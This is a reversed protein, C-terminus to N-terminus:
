KPLRKSIKVMSEKGGKNLTVEVLEEWVNKIVDNM